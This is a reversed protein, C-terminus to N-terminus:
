AGIKHVTVLGSAHIAYVTSENLRMYLEDGREWWKFDAPFDNDARVRKVSEQMESTIKM